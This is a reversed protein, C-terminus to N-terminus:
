ERKSSIWPSPLKEVGGLKVYAGAAGLLAPVLLNHAYAEAGFGSARGAKMTCLRSGFTRKRWWSVINHGADVDAVVLPNNDDRLYWGQLRQLPRVIRTDIRCAHQQPPLMALICSLHQKLAM